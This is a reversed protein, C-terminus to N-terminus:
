KWLKTNCVLVVRTLRGRRLESHLDWCTYTLALRRLVRLLSRQLEDVQQIMIFFYSFYFTPFPYCLLGLTLCKFSIFGAMVQPYAPRNKAWGSTRLATCATWQRTRCSSDKKASTCLWSTDTTRSRRTRVGASRFIWIYV